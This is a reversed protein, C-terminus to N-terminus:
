QMSDPRYLYTGVYKNLFYIPKSCLLEATITHSTMTSSIVTAPTITVPKTSKDCFRAQQHIMASLIHATTEEERLLKGARVGKILGRIDYYCLLRFEMERGDGVSVM